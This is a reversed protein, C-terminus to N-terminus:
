AALMGRHAHFRQCDVAFIGNAQATDTLLKTYYKLVSILPTECTEVALHPVLSAQVVRLCIANSIDAGLLRGRQSIINNIPFGIPLDMSTWHLRGPHGSAHARARATWKALRLAAVQVAVQTHSHMHTCIHVSIYLSLSLSLSLVCRSQLVSGCVAVCQLVICWVALACPVHWLLIQACVQGRGISRLRRSSRHVRMHSTVGHESPWIVLHLRKHDIATCVRPLITRRPM